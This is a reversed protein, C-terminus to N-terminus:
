KGSFFRFVLSLVISIVIMSTIPMFFSSNEGKYSIDGPLRGFWNVLWPYYELVLGIAALLLGFIILLKSM